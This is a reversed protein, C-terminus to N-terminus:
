GKPAIPLFILCGAIYFHLLINKLFIYTETLIYSHFIGFLVKLLERIFHSLKSYSLNYVLFTYINNIYM